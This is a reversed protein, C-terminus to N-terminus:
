LGIGVGNLQNRLFHNLERLRSLGPDTDKSLGGETTGDEVETTGDEVEERLVTVDRPAEIGLRVVGPKVSVVQVTTNMGPFVIKQNPRRSLVLMPPCGKWRDHRPKFSAAALRQAKGGVM